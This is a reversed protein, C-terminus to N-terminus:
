YPKKKKLLSEMSKNFDRVISKNTRKPTNLDGFFNDIERSEGKCVTYFNVFCLPTKGNTLIKTCNLISKDM